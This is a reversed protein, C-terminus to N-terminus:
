RSPQQRRHGAGPAARGVKSTRDSFPTDNYRQYRSPGVPTAAAAAPAAARAHMMGVALLCMGHLHCALLDLVDTAAAATM